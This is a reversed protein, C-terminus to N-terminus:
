IGIWGSLKKTGKLAVMHANVYSIKNEECWESPFFTQLLVEQFRVPNDIYQAQSARTYYWFSNENWFSVHTPDQFAGRGDTSPVQVIFIGGDVLVRYAEKMMHIPNRFKELTDYAVILGVSNDDFPWIEQELNANVEANAKGFSVFGPREGAKGGLDITLLENRDSWVKSIGEIFRTHIPMVNNQIEANHKLWTNESGIRYLYLCKDIFYFPTVLYTRAILEQDDLVRMETNHGGTKEYVERTWARLHNPCYWIRSIATPHDDFSVLEELDHGKYNFPRYDWGNGEAFRDTPEFNGRFSASNSYVFGCEPHETFALVLQAIADDTLLDDHDVELFIDGTCKSCAYAKLAGVWEHEYKFIKVRPDAQIEEPIIAGNNPVLVWEYFDQDRITEYLEPLFEVNNTPTFISVKM